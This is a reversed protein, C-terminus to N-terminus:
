FTLNFPATQTQKRPGNVLLAITMAKPLGFINPDHSRACAARTQSPFAGARVNRAVISKRKALPAHLPARRDRSTSSTPWPLKDCNASPPGRSRVCAYMMSLDVQDVVFCSSLYCKLIVGRGGGCGGIGVERDMSEPTSPKQSALVLDAYM